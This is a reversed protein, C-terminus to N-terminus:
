AERIIKVSKRKIVSGTVYSKVPMLEPNAILALLQSVAQRGVLDRQVKITTLAPSSISAYAIDDFGIVSIDQPIKYGKEKLAKIAGLAITDNDAFFCPSLKPDSKLIEKMEQYAGILSPSLRFEDEEDFELGLEKVYIKFARNRARFNEFDTRSRFYGIKKHGCEKCHELALYVNEHNNMCVSSCPFNPVTNDVVVFPLPIRSLLPYMEERLESGIVIAGIYREYDIAEIGKEFDSKLATMNMRYGELNLRNEIADIIMSVFGQNEEVLMGSEHYKLLLIRGSKKAKKPAHHYGHERAADLVRKRTEAGVGERGNLVLSVTAPSVQILKALERITM